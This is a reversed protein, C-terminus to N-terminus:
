PEEFYKNHESLPKLQYLECSPTANEFIDAVVPATINVKYATEEYCGEDSNLQLLYIVHEGPEALVDGVKYEKGQGGAETYYYQDGNVQPFVYEACVAVNEPKSPVTGEEVKIKLIFVEHCGTRIDEIRIYLNISNTGEIKYSVGEIKNENGVLADEETLYYAVTYDESNVDAFMEAEVSSLDVIRENLSYRCTEFEIPKHVVKSIAPYIEIVKEGQVECNIAPYRGIVKYTGSECAEYEQETAGPIIEGDKYWQIQVDESTLGSNITVCEGGCLANGTEVLLNAGLDLNGLDFSGANFFVASSHNPCFDMIALKIHYKRGAVVHVTESSMAVTSGAFNIPAEIPKSIGSTYNAWFLEPYSSCSTGTIKENDWITYLSIPTNTGKIKALNQGEGTTLDVLWAAFLSGNACSYTCGNIYSNSAFLYDFKISDKVPIFDFELQTVLMDTVGSPKGGADNIADNIDKDGVWRNRNTGQTDMFPGAVYGVENTALVIGEEFPFTSNDKNFYGIANYAQTAPSGDGIQYSINSVLDCNSNILVDKVLEEVTYEDGSPSVVLPTDEPTGICLKFIVDTYDTYSVGIRVYYKQGPTLNNLAVDTDQYISRCFISTNTISGCPQDYVAISMTPTYSDTLAVIDSVSLQHLSATATFEFWVDGTVSYMCSAMATSSVTSGYLTGSVSEVCEMTDNVPINIAGVCDDNAGVKTIGIGPTSWDSYSKGDTCKARVYVSYGKGSPLGTLTAKPTGAITTTQVPTATEDEGYEVVLVEWSTVGGDQQWEVDMGSSTQNSIKIYYPEPCTEVKKLHVNDLYISSYGSTTVRWAINADGTVGSFFIVEEKYKDNKYTQSPKIVKTFDATDTGNISALVEFKNDYYNYAQYHYKLVYMGGDLTTTPSILWDDSPSGSGSFSMVGDGEYMGYNYLEWVAYGDDDADIIEWCRATKSDSNFGEWFPATYIDCLTVFVFPGAWISYEGNGCDTRVYYEYDTNPELLTGSADATVANEKQTTVTGSGTPSGEGAKQVVYEWKSAGFDDSWSITAKKTEINKADLNLPEPCGVVEEVFVNDIYTYKTGTGSIHWAINVSGSLGSIFVKEELYNDNKYVKDKVLETTFNAPKIGSNSVLVEFNSTDNYSYGRYHYKLRYIKGSDLTFTPSILWDDSEIVESYDYNYFYMCHTGEYQSYNYQRWMASSSTGDGNMDLITWCYIGESKSNFGEWFPTTFVTCATRFKYPGSWEGEKGSGCSTRVYFEYETNAELVDGNKDTTILIEKAKTATGSSPVNGGSQQVVYEWDKGFDDQWLITAKDIDIDKVGLSLPEPCTIEELFVNDIYVYTYPVSSTVHWAININGGVGGIIVKEEKWNSDSEGKKTQLVKTFDSPSTGKDSLVVEFDNKYSTTTKYHYRLKYYKTADLNFIPSILYDDHPQFAVNSQSGYFYMTQDGEYQSYNYVRWINSGTPSTSDANNDVISWCSLTPSTTNFGEWFPLTQVDCPTRFKFPGIWGSNKGPGCVSRVWFEYETNSQLNASGTGNTRTVTVPKSNTITGSGTPKSGGAAQVYTEWQSNTTDTWNFKAKDKELDSITIDDEPGICDVKELTIMDLYVYTTGTSVVHWGIHVEGSAGTIYATKKVYSGNKYTSKPVVDTTFQSPDTGNNSWKVEFENDYSSSTKYYYTLQYTDTSNMNIAPSIVWDDHTTGSSGSFYMSYSGEYANSSSNYLRWMNSSSPSGDKNSDIITWCALTQSTTEFNETFPWNLVKCSTRFVFPGSWDGFSGDSCKARVYFEYETNDKLNAGGRDKTVTVEKTTVATGTGSPYGDGEAQVVYEWSANFDDGWFIAAKNTEIDKVGLNVPDACDVEVLTVTDLYLYTGTGKSTVRWALNVDGSIGGIFLSEEEWTSSSHGKKTLLTTTFNSLATGSQSLLVEFDNSYSTTTKYFYTLKYLKSADLTLAPSILYDDHPLKSASSQSGYFYMMQDGEYPSYTDTEWINSYTTGDSNNDIITWCDLSPSDTNFGEWFPVPFSVCPTVASINVWDSKGITDGCDTRVWIYYQTNATLNDFTYSNAASTITYSDCFGPATASTSIILGYTNSVVNGPDTWSVSIQDALNATIKLDKPAICTTSNDVFKINPRNANVTGKDTPPNNDERWWMHKSASSSYKVENGSDGVGNGSGGYNAEVLVLLNDTGSFDFATSLRFVNWGSVLEITGDYVLTANNITNAWTATSLTTDTTEKLYIKLPRGGGEKRADWALSTISMGASGVEAATYLAASREYGYYNGLPYVQIGTGTGVTTEVIVNVVVSTRVSEEGAITQSVYYTGSLLDDSSNLPVTSTASDYWNFVAGSDGSVALDSVKASSCFSQAIVTPANPPAVNRSLIDYEKNIAYLLVSCIFFLVITFNKTIKKM